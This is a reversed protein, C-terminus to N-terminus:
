GREEALEVLQLAHFAEADVEALRRFWEMSPTSSYDPGDSSTRMIVGQEGLVSRYVYVDCRLTRGVFRCCDPNICDHEFRPTTRMSAEM